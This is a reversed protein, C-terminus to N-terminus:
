IIIIQIVNISKAKEYINTKAKTNTKTTTRTKQEHQSYLQGKATSSLM